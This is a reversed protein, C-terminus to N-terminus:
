ASPRRKDHRCPPRTKSTCRRVTVLPSNPRISSPLEVGSRRRRTSRRSGASPQNQRRANTPGPRDGPGACRVVCPVAHGTRESGGERAACFTAVLTAVEVTRDAVLRIRGPNRKPVQQVVGGRELPPEVRDPALHPGRAPVDLGREEEVAVYPPEDEARPASSASRRTALSAGALTSRRRSSPDARSAEGATRAASPGRLRRPRRLV